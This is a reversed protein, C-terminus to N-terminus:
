DETSFSILDQIRYQTKTYLCTYQLLPQLSGGRALTSQALCAQDRFKIWTRQAERLMDESPIEGEALYEDRSRAAAVAFKWYENLEADAAQFDKYACANMASQTQPETCEATDASACTAVITLAVAFIYPKM